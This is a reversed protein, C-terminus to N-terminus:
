DKQEKRQIHHAITHPTPTKQVYFRNEEFSVFTKHEHAQAHYSYHIKLLEYPYKRRSHM